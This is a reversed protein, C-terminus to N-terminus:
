RRWKSIWRPRWRLYLVELGLVGLGAVLAGLGVLVDEVGIGKPDQWMAPRTWIMIGFIMAALAGLGLWILLVWELMFLSSGSIPFSEQV